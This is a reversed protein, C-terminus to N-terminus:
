KEGLASPGADLKPKLPPPDGVNLPDVMLRLGAIKSGGYAVVNTGIVFRSVVGNRVCTGGGSDKVLHKGPARVKRRRDVFEAVEQGVGVKAPMEPLFLYAQQKVEALMQTSGEVLDRPVIRAVQFPEKALLEERVEFLEDRLSEIL